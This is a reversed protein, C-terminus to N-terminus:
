KEGNNGEPKNKLSYTSGKEPIKDVISDAYNTVLGNAAESLERLFGEAITRNKCIEKNQLFLIVTALDSTKIKRKGFNWYFKYEPNSCHNDMKDDLKGKEEVTLNQSSKVSIDYCYKGKDERIIFDFLQKRDDSYPKFEFVIKRATELDKAEIVLSIFYSLDEEEIEKLVTEHFREYLVKIIAKYVEENRKEEKNKYLQKLLFPDREMLTDFFVKKEYFNYLIYLEKEDLYTLQKKPKEFDFIGFFYVIDFSNYGREVMDKLVKIYNSNNFVVLEDLNYKMLLSCDIMNKIINFVVTEASAGLEESLKILSFKNKIYLSVLDYIRGDNDLKTKKIKKIIKVDSTNGM